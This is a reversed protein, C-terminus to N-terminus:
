QSSKKFRKKFWQQFRQPWQSPADKPRVNFAVVSQWLPVGGVKFSLSLHAIVLVVMSAWAFVHLNYWANDWEKNFLAKPGGFQRASVMSLMLMSLLLTNILRHLAYQGSPKSLHPLQKISKLQILRRRGAFLSYLLFVAFCLTVAQGINHHISLWKSDAEPLPLRGFRKDWTNYLWFGTSLSGLVALGNAAHLLRFILPQYPRSKPM